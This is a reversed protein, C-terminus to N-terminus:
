EEEGQYIKPTLWDSETKIFNLNVASEAELILEYKDGEENWINMRLQSFPLEEHDVVNEVEIKKIKDILVRTIKLKTMM